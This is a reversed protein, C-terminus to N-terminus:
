SKWQMQDNVEDELDTDSPLREVNEVQDGRQPICAGTRLTIVLVVGSPQDIVTVVSCM